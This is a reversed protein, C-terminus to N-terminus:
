PAVEDWKWLGLAGRAPIPENLRKVDKLIWAWRGFAFDGFAWDRMDAGQFKNTPICDALTCTAVIVGRPLSSFLNYGADALAPRYPSSMSVRVVEPTWGKAAHIALPGRYRTSWTRTETQKAGIAVLTAWPQTLTIARM